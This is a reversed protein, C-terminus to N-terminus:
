PCLPCQSHTFSNAGHLICYPSNPLCIHDNRQAVLLRVGLLFQVCVYVCISVFVWMCLWVCVCVQLWVCLWYTARLTCHIGWLCSCHRCTYTHTHTFPQTYAIIYMFLTHTHTHINTLCQANTSWVIKDSESNNKQWLYKNSIQTRALNSAFEHRFLPTSFSSPSLTLQWAFKLATREFNLVIGHPAVWIRNICILNIRHSDWIARENHYPPWAM